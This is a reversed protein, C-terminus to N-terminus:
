RSDNKHVVESQYEKILTELKSIRFGSWNDVDTIVVPAITHGMEQVMKMAEDDTSLDVTEFPINAKALWRKTANCQVCNPTTYVTINM